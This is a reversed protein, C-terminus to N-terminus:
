DVITILEQPTPAAEANIASISTKGSQEVTCLSRVGRPKWMGDLPVSTLRRREVVSSTERSSSLGASVPPTARQPNMM